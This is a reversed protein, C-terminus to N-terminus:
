IKSKAELMNQVYAIVASPVGILAVMTILLPVFNDRSYAVVTEPVGPVNWVAALLGVVAGAATQALTRWGRQAPTKQPTTQKGM